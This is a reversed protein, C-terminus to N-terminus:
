QCVREHGHQKKNEKREEKREKARRECLWGWRAEADRALWLSARLWPSFFSQTACGQHRPSPTTSVTAAASESGATSKPESSGSQSKQRSDRAFDSIRRKQPRRDAGRRASLADATFIGMGSTEGLHTASCM